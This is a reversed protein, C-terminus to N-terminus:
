VEQCGFIKKQCDVCLGSVIQEREDASLKPFAVQALAGNVYANYESEEVTVSHISGCWPCTILLEIMM